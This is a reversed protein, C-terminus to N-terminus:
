GRQLRAALAVHYGDPRPNASIAEVAIRPDSFLTFTVLNGLIPVDPSAVLAGDQASVVADIGVGAGLIDATTRVVLRGASGRRASMTLQPPLVHQLDKTALAAAATLQADHLRARVDHVTLPGEHLTDITVRADDVRHAQGALEAARDVSIDLKELHIQVADAHGWLLEVAPFASVHVREVVGDRGLRHRIVSAALAPLVFQAALLVAGVVGAGVLVRTRRRVGRLRRVGTTESGLVPAPARTRATADDVAASTPGSSTAPAAREAV